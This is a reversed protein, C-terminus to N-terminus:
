NAPNFSTKENNKIREIEQEAFKISLYDKIIDTDNYQRYARKKKCKSCEAIRTFLERIYNDVIPRRWKETIYAEDLIAYDHIGLKCLINM